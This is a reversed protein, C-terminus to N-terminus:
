SMQALKALGKHLIVKAANVDANETHGCAVCCFTKQNPRNEKEIVGCIRCTQSTYAPNVAIIQKGSLRAKYELMTRFASFSIDLAKLALKKNRIMFQPSLDEIVIVEYTDVLYKTLAHLWERRKEAVHFHLKRMEELTKLMRKSKNFPRKGKISRGKEDYCDPNNARMQRNHHRALVRLERLQSQYHREPKIPTGDSLTFAHTIGVDIGIVPMDPHYQALNENPAQLTDLVLQAFWNGNKDKSISAYSIRVGAPIIRHYRTRVDGVNMLRLISWKQENSSKVLKSHSDFSIAEFQIGAGFKYELTDCIKMKKPYGGVKGSKIRNFFGQYAKDLRLLVYTATDYPLLAFGDDLKRAKTVWIKGQQRSSINVKAEQWSWMRELRAINYLRKSHLMMQNLAREQTPTPYLRYRYTTQITANKKM